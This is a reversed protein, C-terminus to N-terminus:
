IQNIQEKLSESANTIRCGIQEHEFFDEDMVWKVEIKLKDFELEPTTGKLQTLILVDDKKITIAPNKRYTLCVGEESLNMVGAEVPEEQIGPFTFSATIEDEKNFFVRRYKRREEWHPNM